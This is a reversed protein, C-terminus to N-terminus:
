RERRWFFREVSRDPDDLVRCPGGVFGERQYFRHAARFRVDSWLWTDRWPGESAARKLLISALGTKRYEPKVYMRRLLRAGGQPMVAVTGVLAGESAAVWFGGSRYHGPIDFLDDEFDPDFILGYEQYIGSIHGPVDDDSRWPRILM